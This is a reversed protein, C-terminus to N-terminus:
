GGLLFPRREVPPDPLELELEVVRPAVRRRRSGVRRRRSSATSGVSRLDAREPGWLYFPLVRVLVWVCRVRARLPAARGGPGDKLPASSRQPAPTARGRRKRLATAGARERVRVCACARAYM